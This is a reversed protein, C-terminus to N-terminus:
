FQTRVPRFGVYFERDEPNRRSRSAARSSSALYHWAGGRFSRKGSGPANVPDIVPGAPYDEEYHDHCWEWVNGLIDYLGWSNPMKQMVPQPGSECFWAIPDLILNPHECDLIDSNLDGTYTATTTGARAAYEWEAETPLRFGPCDYPTSFLTSLQCVSDVGSGECDYCESLGAEQSLANCWAAAEHWSVMEVPCSSGCTDHYSPSYGMLTEFMSQTIESSLISYDRTLTVEHQLENSHRGAEEVPSGMDFATGATILVWDYGGWGCFSPEGDCNWGTEVTCGDSCGDGGETNGDDCGEHGVLMGDGCIEVSEGNDEDWQWGDEVDCVESCGDGGEINGDDCGEDGRVRGDGCIPNCVSLEGDCLWGEEVACNSSCGDGDETNGDDCEEDPSLEGDGCLRINECRSTDVLCNESCSLYGGTFGFDECRAGGFSNGDCEEDGDLVGNGCTSEGNCDSTNLLCDSGCSLEGGIFGIDVCDLGALNNGDCEEGPDIVGNGCREGNENTQNSGESFDVMCGSILCCLAVSLWVNSICVSKGNNSM